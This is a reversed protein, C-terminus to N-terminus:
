LSFLAKGKVVTRNIGNIQKLMATIKQTSCGVTEGIAKSTMPEEANVLVSIIQEKLAKDAEQKATEKESIKRPRNLLELEHTLGEILEAKADVDTASIVEIATAFLEKKTM